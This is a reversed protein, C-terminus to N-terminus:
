VFDNRSDDDKVGPHLWDKYDILNHYIMRVQKTAIARVRVPEVIEWYSIAVFEDPDQIHIIDQTPMCRCFEDDDHMLSPQAGPYTNIVELDSYYVRLRLDGYKM